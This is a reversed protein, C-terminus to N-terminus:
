VKNYPLERDKQSLANFANVINLPETLLVSEFVTNVRFKSLCKECTFINESNLIIPVLMPNQGCPCNVSVTQTQILNDFAAQEAAVLTNSKKDPNFFYFFLFHLIIAATLGQWFGILDKLVFGIGISILFTLGLSLGLKKIM